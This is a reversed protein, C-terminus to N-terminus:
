TMTFRLVRNNSMDNVYLYTENHNLFTNSPNNLLMLSTGSNATVGALTKGYTAGLNWQQVRHNNYDAIYLAGTKNLVYVGYPTDLQNSASGQGNGGAVTTGNMSNGLQF